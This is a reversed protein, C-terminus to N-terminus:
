PEHQLDHRATEASESLRPERIPQRPGFSLDAGSTAKESQHGDDFRADGASKEHASRDVLGGGPPLLSRHGGGPLDLGASDVFLQYGHGLGSEARGTLFG